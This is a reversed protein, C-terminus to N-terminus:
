CIYNYYIDLLGIKNLAYVALPGFLLRYHTKGIAAYTLLYAVDLNPKKRSEIEGVQEKKALLKVRERERERELFPQLLQSTFIFKERRITLLMMIITVELAQLFVALRCRHLTKAKILLLNISFGKTSIKSCPDKKNSCLYYSVIGERRRGYHDM